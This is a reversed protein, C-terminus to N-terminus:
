PKPKTSRPRAGSANGAAHHISRSNPMAHGLGPRVCLSNGCFHDVDMESSTQYPADAQAAITWLYATRLKYQPRQGNNAKSGTWMWCEDGERWKYGLKEVREIFLPSIHGNWSLGITKSEGVRDLIERLEEDSPVPTVSSPRPRYKKNVLKRIEDDM